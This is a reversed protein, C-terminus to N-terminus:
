GAEAHAPADRRPARDLGAGVSPETPRPSRTGLARVQHWRRRSNEEVSALHVTLVLKDREDYQRVEGVVAVRADVQNGQADFYLTEVRM